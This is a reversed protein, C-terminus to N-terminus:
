VSDPSRKLQIANLCKQIAARKADFDALSFTAVGIRNATACRLVLGINHILPLGAGLASIVLDDGFIEVSDAVAQDIREIAKLQDFYRQVHRGTVAYVQFLTNVETEQSQIYGLGTEGALGHPVEPKAALHAFLSAMQRPFLLIDNDIALAFHAAEQKILEWQYGAGRRVVQDTMTLRRDTIKVWDRIRLQPNNNSVIVKEVFTCKLAARILPEINKMREAQYGSLIVIGKFEFPLSVTPGFRGNFVWLLRLCARATAKLRAAVEMYINSPM